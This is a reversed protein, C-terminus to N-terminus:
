FSGPLQRAQAPVRSEDEEREERLFQIEYLMAYLGSRALLSQHTGQEVIRGDQLVFIVSARRITALRHANIICTRGTMLNNLAKLVLESRFLM